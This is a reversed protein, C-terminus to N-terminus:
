KLQNQPLTQLSRSQSVRSKRLRHYILPRFKLHILSQLLIIFPVSKSHISSNLKEIDLGDPNHCLVLFDYFLQKHEKLQETCEIIGIAQQPKLPVKIFGHPTQKKVSGSMYQVYFSLPQVPLTYWTYLVGPYVSEWCYLQAYVQLAKLIQLLQKDM